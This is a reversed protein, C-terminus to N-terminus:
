ILVPIGFYFTPGTGIKSEVWITGGHQKIIETSLYLGIGFGSIHKTNNTEVRFYHDFLLPIDHVNIDM